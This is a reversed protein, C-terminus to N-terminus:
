GWVSSMVVEEIWLLGDAAQGAGARDHGCVFLGGSM